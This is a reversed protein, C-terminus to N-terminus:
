PTDGVRSLASLTLLDQIEQKDVFNEMVIWYVDTGNYSSYSGLCSLQELFQHALYGDTGLSVHTGDTLVIVYCKPKTQDRYM